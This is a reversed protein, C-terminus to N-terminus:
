ADYEGTPPKPKERIGLEIELRECVYAAPVTWDAGGLIRDMRNIVNMQGFRYALKMLVAVLLVTVLIMVLM